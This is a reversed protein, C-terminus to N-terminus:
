DEEDTEDLVEIDEVMDEVDEITEDITEVIDDLVEFSEEAISEAIEDSLDHSFDFDMNQFVGSLKDAVEKFVQSKRQLGDLNIDMKINKHPLDELKDALDELPRISETVTKTVTESIMAAIRQTEIILPAIASSLFAPTPISSNERVQQRLERKVRRLNERAQRVNEKINKELEKKIKHSMHGVEDPDLGFTRVEEPEVNGKPKKQDLEEKVSNIKQKIKYLEDDISEM